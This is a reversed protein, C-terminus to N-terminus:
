SMGLKTFTLLRQGVDSVYNGGTTLTDLDGITSFGSKRVKTPGANYSAIGKARDGKFTRIYTQLLTAGYLINQYADGWLKIDSCFDSHYRDDIQMLGRGHGGDGVGQPSGKPFLADGCLSERDMIAWILYPDLGTQNAVDQVENRWRWARYPLM